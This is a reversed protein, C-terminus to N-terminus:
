DDEKKAGAFEFAGIDPANIYPKENIDSTLSTIIGQDIVPSLTDPHFNWDSRPEIFLPDKNWLTNKFNVDTTDIEKTDVNVLCHDFHYNFDGPILTGESDKNSLSLEGNQTGDIICNTFTANDLPYPYITNGSIYYNTLVVSPNKRTAWSYYNGFTCHTFDYSSGGNAAFLYQECNAFLCNNAEISSCRSILAASTMNEIRCNNLTVTNALSDLYLGILGNRINTHTLHNNTSTKQLALVGWQGPVKDYSLNDYDPIKDLRAGRLLVPAEATGNSQLSGFVYISKNKEIFLRAGAELVLAADVVLDDHIYYPKQATFITDNSFYIGYAIPDNSIIISDEWTKLSIHFAEQGYAQLLVKQEKGNTNFVIHDDILFPLNDDKPDVNVDVFIYMSDQGRLLKNSVSLEPSGDINIRFNSGSGGELHIDNIEIDQKYPNYVRFNLTASGISTFVTDFSLTDTSFRLTANSDEYFNRKECSFFLVLM